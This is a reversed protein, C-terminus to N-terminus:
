GVPEAPSATSDSREHGQRRTNRRSCSRHSNERACHRAYRSSSASCSFFSRRRKKRKLPRNNRFWAPTLRKLSPQVSGWWLRAHRDRHAHFRKTMRRCLEFCFGASWCRCEERRCRFVYRGTPLPSHAVGARDNRRLSGEEAPSCCGAALAPFCSKGGYRVARDM